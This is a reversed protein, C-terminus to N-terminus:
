GFLPEFGGGPRGLLHRLLAVAGSTGAAAAVATHLASRLAAESPSFPMGTAAAIDLGHVTLEFTRTPLYDGLHMGGAVTSIVPDGRVARLVERARTIAARVTAAPDPGLRRGADHGREAVARAGADGLARVRVLYEGASRCTVADPGPEELYATVTTVARLTHGVLARVDWEGLGPLDWRDGTIRDCLGAFTDAVALFTASEASVIAAREGDATM